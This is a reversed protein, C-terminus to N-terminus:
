PSEGVPKRPLLILREAEEPTVSAVVSRYLGPDTVVVRRGPVHLTSAVIDRALALNGRDKALRYVPDDVSVANRTASHSLGHFWESAHAANMDDPRTAVFRTRAADQPGMNEALALVTSVEGAQGSTARNSLSSPLVAAWAASPAAFDQLATGLGVAAAVSVLAAVLPRIAGSRGDQVEAAVRATILAHTTVMLSAVLSGLGLKWFYYTLEGTTTLMYSGLLVLQGAAVAAVLVHAGLGSRPHRHRILLLVALSGTLVVAMTPLGVRPVTGDRVVAQLGVGSLWPLVFLVIAMVAGVAAVAAGAWRWLTGQGRWANVLTPVLAAAALPLLLMWSATVVVLGCMAVFATPTLRRPSHALLFIVVPACAALLFSLHGQLLNLAGPVALVLSWTVALAPVLLSPPTRDPLSQLLAATMWCAIAAFVLWQLQAYRILEEAADGPDGFTVQGIVTILKHFWQPYDSFGFGSDDANAALLPSGSATLRQELYMAFHYSNDIGTSLMALAREPKRPSALPAAIVAAAAAAALILGDRRRWSPMARRGHMSRPRTLLAATVGATAMSLTAVAATRSGLVHPLWMTIPALGAALSINIALRRDTRASTPAIVLLVLALSTSVWPSPVALLLLAALVGAGIGLGAAPVLHAARPSGVGADLGRPTDVLADASQRSV